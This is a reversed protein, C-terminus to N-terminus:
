AKREVPMVTLSPWRRSPAELLFAGIVDIKRATPSSRNVDVLVGNVVM